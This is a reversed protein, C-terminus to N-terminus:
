STILFKLKPMTIPKKLFRYSTEPSQPWLWQFKRSIKVLFVNNRPKLVMMDNSKKHYFQVILDFLQWKGSNKDFLYLVSINWDWKELWMAGTPVTLDYRIFYEMRFSTVYM